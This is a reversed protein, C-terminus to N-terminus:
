GGGWTNKCAPCRWNVLSYIMAAVALVLLVWSLSSYTSTESSRSFAVVLIVIIVAGYIAWQIM